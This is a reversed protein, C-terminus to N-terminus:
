RILKLCAPDVSYRLGDFAVAIDGDWDPEIRVVRGLRGREVDAQRHVEGGERYTACETIVEVTDGNRLQQTVEAHAAESQGDACEEIQAAIVRLQNTVAELLPAMVQAYVPGDLEGFPMDSLGHVAAEQEIWEALEDQYDCLAVVKLKVIHAAVARAAEPDIHM